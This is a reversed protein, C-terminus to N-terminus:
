FGFLKRLIDTQSIQMLITTALATWAVVLIGKFGRSFKSNLYLAYLGLPFLVILLLIAIVASDYWNSATDDAPVSLKTEKTQALEKKVAPAEAKLIKQSVPRPRREPREQPTATAEPKVIANLYKYISSLSLMEEDLAVTHEQLGLNRRDLDTQTILGVKTLKDFLSKLGKYSLRYKQMLSSDDLGSRIDRAAEQANIWAGSKTKTPVPAVAEVKQEPMITESIQVTGLFGPMRDRVEALDIYGGSVLKDFLSQLGEAALGYKKMLAADDMGLRIAAVAEKASIKRKAM